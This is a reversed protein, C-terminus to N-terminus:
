FSKKIQFQSMRKLNDELKPFKHLFKTLIIEEKKQRKINPVYMRRKKTVITQKPRSGDKRLGFISDFTFLISTFEKPKRRKKSFMRLKMEDNIKTINPGSQLTLTMVENRYPDYLRHEVSKKSAMKNTKQM